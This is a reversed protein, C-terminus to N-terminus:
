QSVQMTTRKIQFHAHFDCLSYQPVIVEFYNKNRVHLVRHNLLVDKYVDNECYTIIQMINDDESKNELITMCIHKEM